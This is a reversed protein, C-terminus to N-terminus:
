CQGQLRWTAENLSNMQQDINTFAERVRKNEQDIQSLGSEVTAVSTQVQAVTATLREQQQLVAAVKAPSIEPGTRHKLRNVWPIVEDNLKANVAQVEKDLSTLKQDNKQVLSNTEQVTQRIGGFNILAAVLVGFGAVAGAIQCILKWHKKMTVGLERRLGSYDWGFDYTLASMSRTVCLRGAFNDLRVWLSMYEELQSPAIVMVGVVFYMLRASLAPSLEDAPRHLGAVISSPLARIDRGNRASPM